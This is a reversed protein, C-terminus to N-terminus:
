SREEERDGKGLAVTVTGEGWFGSDVSLLRTFGEFVDENEGYRFVMRATAEADSFAVALEMVTPNGGIVATLIGQAVGCWPTEYVTGNNLTLTRM